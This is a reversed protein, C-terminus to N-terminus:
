FLSTVAKSSFDLSLPTLSVMKKVNLTHADTGEDHEVKNISVKLKSVRSSSTGNEVLNKYYPKDTLRTIEAATSESAGSPIDLKLIQFNSFRKKESFKTIYKKLFYIASEWNEEGYHFHNDLSTQLSAAIAPIGISSAEFAAGLTGSITVDSGINEGYNIGSVALDFKVGRFVTQFAMKLVLAPTCDIHFAKFKKEKYNIVTEHFFEDKDGILSRGSATKQKSPAAIFLNGYGSAAEAAAALGPSFIGDDNTVIINM